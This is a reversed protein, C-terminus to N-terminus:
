IEHSIRRSSLQRKKEYTVSWACFKQGSDIILRVADLKFEKSFSRRKKGM